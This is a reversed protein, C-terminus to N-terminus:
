APGQALGLNVELPDEGEILPEDFADFAAENIRELAGDVLLGVQACAEAVEARTWQPRELLRMCLSAYAGELPLPCDPLEGLFSDGTMPPTLDRIQHERSAPVDEGTGEFIEGLVRGVTATEERLQAVRRMDLSSTAVQTNGQLIPMGVYTTGFESVKSVCASRETLLKFLEQKLMGLADCYHELLAMVERSPMAGGAYAVDVLTRALVTRDTDGLKELRRKMSGAPKAPALTPASLAVLLAKLRLYNGPELDPWDLIASDAVSFVDDNGALGARLLDAIFGVRTVQGVNPVPAAPTTGGNLRFFVLPTDAKPAPSGTRVDPEFGLQLTNAFHASLNKASLAELAANVDIPALLTALSQADSLDQNTPLAAILAEMRQRVGEPWLAYPLLLRPWDKTKAHPNNAVYRAYTNVERAAARGMESVLTFLAGEGESASGSPPQLRLLASSLGQYRWLPADSFQKVAGLRVAFPGSAQVEFAQAFEAYAGRVLDQGGLRPDSLFWSLMWRAPPVQGDQLAQSLAIRHIDPFDTSAGAEPPAGAYLRTGEVLHCYAILSKARKVFRANRYVHALESLEERIAPLSTKADDWRRAEIAVRRELGYYFLYLFGMNAKPDRRGRALWHLYAARDDPRAGAYTPNYDLSSKRYDDDDGIPLDEDVLSPEIGHLRSGDGGGCLYFLGDCLSYRHVRVEMDAPVWFHTLNGARDARQAPEDPRIRYSERAEPEPDFTHFRDFSM